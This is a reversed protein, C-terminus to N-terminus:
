KTAPSMGAAPTPAAATGFNGACWLNLAAIAQAQTIGIAPVQSLFASPNSCVDAAVNKNFTSLSCAGIALAVLVAAPVLFKIYKM